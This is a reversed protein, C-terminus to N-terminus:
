LALTAILLSEITGKALPCTVSVCQGDIRERIIALSDIWTNGTAQDQVYNSRLAIHNKVSLAKTFIDTLNTGM